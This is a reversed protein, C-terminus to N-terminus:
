GPAYAGPLASFQASGRLPSVTAVCGKYATKWCQLEPAARPLRYGGSVRRPNQEVEHTPQRGRRVDDRRKAAIGTSNRPTQETASNLQWNHCWERFAATQKVSSAARLCRVGRAACRSVFGPVM